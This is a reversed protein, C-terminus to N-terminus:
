EHMVHARCGSRLLSAPVDIGPTADAAAIPAGLRSEIPVIGSWIPAGADAPDDKPGGSRIKASAAEIDFRLLATAALENHDAERSEAARGPVIIDVFRALAMAKDRDDTVPQARGFAVVSRYNVSHHFHSRALVLADIVTVAVCAEVGDGLRRMLRSAISGHLLLSRGERAHLMPIVFPQGGDGSFAVHALWSADLVAHVIAEDYHARQRARQIEHRPKNRM